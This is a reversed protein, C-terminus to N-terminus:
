EKKRWKRLEWLKKKFNLEKKLKFFSTIALVIFSLFQTSDVKRVGDENEQLLWYELKM